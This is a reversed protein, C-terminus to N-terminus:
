PRTSPKSLVTSVRRANCFLDNLPEPAFLGRSHACHFFVVNFRPQRDVIRRNLPEVLASPEVFDHVSAQRRWWHGAWQSLSERPPIAVRSPIAEASLSCADPGPM